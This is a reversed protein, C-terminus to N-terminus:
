RARNTKRAEKVKNELVSILDLQQARNVGWENNLAALQQRLAKRRAMLEQKRDEIPQRDASPASSLDQQASALDSTCRAIELLLTTRRAWYPALRTGYASMLASLASLNNTESLEKRQWELEKRQLFITFLVGAFALGTFFANVGGFIDGFQGRHQLTGIESFVRTAYYYQIGLIGAIALGIAVILSTISFVTAQAHAGSKTM